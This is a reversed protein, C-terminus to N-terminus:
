LSDFEKAQNWYEDMEKLTMDEIPKRLENSKQEIYKFRKIFKNVTTRLADEPNIKVYRLVNVLSFIIDGAEETVRAVDIEKEKFLEKFELVEEDIKDFIDEIQEWEFGLRSVKQQVRYAMLLAPLHRPVGNLISVEKGRETQKIKEWRKIVEDADAVEDDGFVHPHRRILKETIGAAVDDISFQQQEKAIQAHSYIQFLLDGLEEKLHETSGSEIADYTEYAEEILYPKLSDSTQKKDWACGTEGRLIEAIEELVYLPKKEKFQM